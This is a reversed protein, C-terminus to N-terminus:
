LSSTKRLSNTSFAAPSNGCSACVFYGCHIESQAALDRDDTPRALTDPEGNCAQKGGLARVHSHHCSFSFRQCLCHRLDRSLRASTGEGYRGVNPGGGVALSNDCTCTLVETTQIDQDVVVTRRRQSQDRLEVVRRPFARDLSIQHAHHAQRTVCQWM